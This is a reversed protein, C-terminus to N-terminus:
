EELLSANIRRTFAEFLNMVPDLGGTRINKYVAQESIDLQRAIEAVPKQLMLGQLIEFRNGKWKSLHYNLLALAADLMDAQADDLGEIALLQGTKKLRDIGARAHYFAPGDMGIAQDPNIDTSIAGIGLSFRIQIPALAAIVTIIDLFAGDASHFVAQFEDGLTITYNSLLTPNQINLAAIVKRLHQQVGSRDAIQRSDIIDAIIVLRNM